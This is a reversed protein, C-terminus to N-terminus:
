LEFKTPQEVPLDAPAGGQPNSRRLGGHAPRTRLSQRWVGDPRGRGRPWAYSVAPLPGRGGDPPRNSAANILVRGPESLRHRTGTVCPSTASVTGALVRSQCARARSEWNRLPVLSLRMGSARIRTM